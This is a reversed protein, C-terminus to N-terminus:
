LGEKWTKNVRIYEAARLIETSYTTTYTGNSKYYKNAGGIGRNYSSLVRHPNQSITVGCDKSIQSVVYIGITINSRIDLIDNHITESFEPYETCFKDYYFDWTSPMIQMIGQAGAYSEALVRFRSETYMMGYFFYEDTDLGLLDIVERILDQYEHDLGIEIYLDPNSEELELLHEQEIPEVNESQPEEFNKDSITTYSQFVPQIDVKEVTEVTNDKSLLQFVTLSMCAILVVCIGRLITRGSIMMLKTSKMKWKIRKM